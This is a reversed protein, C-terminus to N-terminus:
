ANKAEMPELGRYEDYKRSNTVLERIQAGIGVGTAKWRLYLLKHIEPMIRISKQEM